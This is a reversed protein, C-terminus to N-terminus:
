PRLGPPTQAFSGSALYLCNAATLQKETCTQQGTRDGDGEVGLFSRIQAFVVVWALVAPAPHGRTCGHGGTAVLRSVILKTFKRSGQM